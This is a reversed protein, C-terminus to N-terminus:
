KSQNAQRSRLVIAIFLLGLVGALAVTMGFSTDLSLAGTNPARLWWPREDTDDNTDDGTGAGGNDDDNTDDDDPPTTDEEYQVLLEDEAVTPVRSGIARLTIEHVNEDPLLIDFVNTTWIDDQAITREEIFMGDLYAQLTATFRTQATVRAYYQGNLTYYEISIVRVAPSPDEVTVNIESSQSQQASTTASHFLAMSFCALLLTIAIM